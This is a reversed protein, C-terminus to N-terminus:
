MVDKCFCDYSCYTHNGYFYALEETEDKSCVECTIVGSFLEYEGIGKSPFQRHSPDNISGDPRVTWWHPQKGWLPCHYYGRVLTLTPNKSIEEECLERCKGRFTTYDSEMSM